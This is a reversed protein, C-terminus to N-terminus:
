KGIWAASRRKAEEQTIVRGEDVESQGRRLGALIAFRESIEELTATEPMRNLAEVAMQKDTTIGADTTM